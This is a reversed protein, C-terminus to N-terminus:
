CGALWDKGPTEFSHGIATLAHGIRRKPNEPDAGSIALICPLRSEVIAHATLVTRRVLVAREVETEADRLSYNYVHPNYGMERLATGMDEVFMGGRVNGHVNYRRAIETIQAPYCRPFGFHEHMYYAQMWIAAGACIFTNADQTIFPFAEVKLSAGNAHAPFTHKCLLYEKNRRMRPKRLCTRGVATQGTPRVVVYGLYQKRHKDLVLLDQPPLTRCSFFHIRGCRSSPSSFGKGYFACYDYLHDADVYAKEVVAQRAGLRNKAFAVLKELHECPGIEMFSCAMELFKPDRVDLIVTNHALFLSRVAASSVQM